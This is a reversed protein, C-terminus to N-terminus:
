RLPYLDRGQLCLPCRKGEAGRHRSGAEEAIALTHLITNTSGGMALDLSFANKFSNLSLINSPKLDDNVLQLIQKAASIVVKDDAATTVKVLYKSKGLGETDQSQFGLANTVDHLTTWVEHHEIIGAITWRLSNISQQVDVM